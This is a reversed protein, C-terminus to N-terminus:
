SAMLAPLAEVIESPSRKGAHLARGYWYAAGRSLGPRMRDVMLNCLPVGRAGAGAIGFLRLVTREISVTSHRSIFDFVGEFVAGALERCRAVQAEDLYLDPLSDVRYDPAFAPM